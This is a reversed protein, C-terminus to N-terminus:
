RLALLGDGRGHCECRGVAAGGVLGGFRHQRQQCTLPVTAIPNRGQRCLRLRGPQTASVLRDASHASQGQATGDQARTASSVARAQLGSRESLQSSCSSSARLRAPCLVPCRLRRAQNRAVAWGGAGKSCAINARLRRVGVLNITAAPPARRPRNRHRSHHKARPDHARLASRSRVRRPQEFPARGLRACHTRRRSGRALCRLPTRACRPGDCYSGRGPM